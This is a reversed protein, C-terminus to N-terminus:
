HLFHLNLGDLIPPESLMDRSLFWCCIQCQKKQTVGSRNYIKTSSAIAVAPHFMIFQYLNNMRTHTLMLYGLPQITLILM